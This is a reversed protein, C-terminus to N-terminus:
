KSSHMETSQKSANIVHTGKGRKLIVLFFVCVCVYVYAENLNLQSNLPHMSIGTQQNLVSSLINTHMRYLTCANMREYGRMWCMRHLVRHNQVVSAAHVFNMHTNLTCVLLDHLDM